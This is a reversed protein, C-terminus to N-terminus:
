EEYIDEDDDEYFATIAEDLMGQTYTKFFHGDMETPVEVINNYGNEYIAIMAFGQIEGLDEDKDDALEIAMDVFYQNNDSRKLSELAVIKGNLSQKKM